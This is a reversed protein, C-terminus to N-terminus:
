GLSHADGCEVLEIELVRGRDRLRGHSQHGLLAHRRRGVVEMDPKFVGDARRGIELARDVDQDAVLSLEVGGGIVVQERGIGSGLDDSFIGHDVIGRLLEM